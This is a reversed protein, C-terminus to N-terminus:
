HHVEAQPAKSLSGPLSLGGPLGFWWIAAAIPVLVAAAIGLGLATGKRRPQPDLEARWDTEAEQAEYSTGLAFDRAGETPKEFPLASLPPAPRSRAPAATIPPPAVEMPDQALPITLPAEEWLPADAVFPEPDIEIEREPAPAAPMSLIWSEHAAPQQPEYAPTLALEPEAAAPDDLLLEDDPPGSLIPAMAPPESTPVRHSPPVFVPAREPTGARPPPAQFPPPAIEDERTHAVESISIWRDDGVECIRATELIVLAAIGELVHIMTMPGLVQGDPSEVYYLKNEM